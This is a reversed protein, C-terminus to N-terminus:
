TCDNMAQKNDWYIKRETLESVTFKCVNMLYAAIPIVKMNIAKVLHKDNLETRTIINMITSTEGKVRTYVQKM